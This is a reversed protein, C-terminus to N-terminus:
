PLYQRATTSLVVILYYGILNQIMLYHKRIAIFIEYFHKIPFCPYASLIYFIFYELKIGSYKSYYKAFLIFRQKAKM